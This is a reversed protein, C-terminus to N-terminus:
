RKLTKTNAKFAKNNIMTHITRTINMKKIRTNQTLKKERVNIKIKKMGNWEGIRGSGSCANGSGAVKRM